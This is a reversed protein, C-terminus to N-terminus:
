RGMGQKPMEFSKETQYVCGVLYSMDSLNMRADLSDNPLQNTKQQLQTLLFLLKEYRSLFAYQGNQIKWSVGNMSEMIPVTQTKDDILVDGLLFSVGANFSYLYDPNAFESMDARLLNELFSIYQDMVQTYDTGNHYLNKLRRQQDPTFNISM